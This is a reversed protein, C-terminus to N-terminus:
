EVVVVVVPLERVDVHEQTGLDVVRVAEMGLVGRRLALFKLDVVACAGPALPGVRVDASLCVLETGAERDGNRHLISEEIVAEALDEAESKKNKAPLRPLAADKRRKPIPLIALKRASQPTSPPQHPLSPLPKVRNVVFVEWTFEEGVRVPQRPASFTMTIGLDPVPVEARTAAELSPLADPRIHRPSILPLFETSGGISLQSPRHSRQLTQSPLPQGFGPNLPPSFDLPTSWAMTLIPKCAASVLAQVTITIDLDRPPHHAKPTTALDLQQPTLRYLLTLHDHAVCCLPLSLSAATNLDEVQGDSISLGITNLLVECDFFPTFDVELMAILAPSPPTTNPRAFRVRAHLVPYIKFALSQLGKLPRLQDASQTAPAVRSVRLASLRPKVGQLAPDGNFSGLLNLGSPVGSQLYGKRSSGSLESGAIRVSSTAQFVISPGQLRMRPRALTVSLKWIAYSYRAESGEEVGESVEDTVIFPEQDERVIGNYVIESAPPADRDSAPSNVVRAELSISVRSLSSRLQEPQAFPTRLVM